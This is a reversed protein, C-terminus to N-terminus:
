KTNEKIAQEIVASMAAEAEEKKARVAPRVVPTKKQRPTGSELAALKISNAVGHRDYGSVSIKTNWGKGDNKIKAIGLSNVLDGTRRHKNLNKRIEDAVIGAGVYIARKSIEDSIDGLRQMEIILEDIATIALKTDFKAM